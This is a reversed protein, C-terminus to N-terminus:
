KKAKDILDVLNKIEEADIEEQTKGGLSNSKNKNVIVIAGILVVSVIGIKIWTSKKM